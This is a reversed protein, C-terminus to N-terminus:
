LKFHDTYNMIIDYMTYSDFIVKNDICANKIDVRYDLNFRKQDNERNLNYVPVKDARSGTIYWTGDKRYIYYESSKYIICCVPSYGKLSTHAVNSFDNYAFENNYAMRGWATDKLSQFVVSKEEAKIFEEEPELLHLLVGKDYYYEEGKIQMEVIKDTLEFIQCLPNIISVANALCILKLPQRGRIERDRAITKYLDLVQEGEKRNVRDWPQPIFEDFIMWDCDSMDFGKVKSIANLAVIYGIPQGIPDGDDSFNWFGGLGKDSIIRSRVNIHHDRNIPKFPSLDIEFESVKGRGCLLKVDDITRKVFVFKRQHQYCDLLASYTKGTGRGGITIIAWAEPFHAIDDCVEYYKM